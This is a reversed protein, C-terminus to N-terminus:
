KLRSKMVALEIREKELQQKRIKIQGECDSILKKLKVVDQYQVYAWRLSAAGVAGTILMNVWLAGNALPKREFLRTGIEMLLGLAANLSTLTGIPIAIWKATTKQSEEAPLRKVAEALKGEIEALEKMEREVRMERQEIVEKLNNDGGGTATSYFQAGEAWATSVAPGTSAGVFSFLTVAVVLKKM